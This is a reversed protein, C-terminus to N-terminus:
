LPDLDLGKKQTTEAEECLVYTELAKALPRQIEEEFVKNAAAM